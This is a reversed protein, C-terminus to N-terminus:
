KEKIKQEINAGHNEGILRFITQITEPGMVNDFENMAESFM